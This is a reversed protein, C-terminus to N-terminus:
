RVSNSLIYSVISLQTPKFLFMVFGNLLDAHKVCNHRIFLLCYHSQESQVTHSYGFVLYQIHNLLHVISLMDSLLM